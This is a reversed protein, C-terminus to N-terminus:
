NVEKLKNYIINKLMLRVDSGLSEIKGHEQRTLVILNTNRNAEEFIVDPVIDYPIIKFPEASVEYYDEDIKM